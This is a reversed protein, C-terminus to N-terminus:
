FRQYVLTKFRKIGTCKALNKALNAGDFIVIM